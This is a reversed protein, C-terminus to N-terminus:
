HCDLELRKEKSGSVILGDSLSTYLSFVPGNHASKVIRELQADKWVWIDGTVCGTYTVKEQICLIKNCELKIHDAANVLSFSNRPSVPAFAISLMTFM